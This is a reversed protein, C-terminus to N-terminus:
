WDKELKKSRAKAMQRKQNVKEDKKLADLIAQAHQLDQQKEPDEQAAQQQQQEQDQQERQEQKSQKSQQQEQQEEKKEGENEQQQDEGQRQQQQNEESEGQQQQDQQQQYRLMEYNHKTDKDEPNLELAKRYLALAEENMKQNVLTNAMNYYVKSRLEKDETELVWQFADLAGQFDQQQFATTGLGFQAADDEDKEELISEYYQRAHEYDGNRYAKLGDDQAFVLGAFVFIFIKYM